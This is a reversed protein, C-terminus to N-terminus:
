RAAEAAATDTPVLSRFDHFSRLEINRAHLAERIGPDCLSTVEQGREARYMTDLDTADGPHCGLETWGAPLEALIEALRAVCIGEPHAAGEATQGYFRPCYRVESSCHRVPVGLEGAHGTVIRRVPRKLHVHQHSDVHTPDRGVIQRFLDFQRSVEDAVKKRDSLPVVEYVAEWRDGRFIWEGLDLHLGVSLDSHVRAYAAAEVAAPWRVMLSASTVIGHRHAEIIGRNIGRSQGFDDANVILLRRNGAM